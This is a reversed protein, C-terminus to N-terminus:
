GCLVVVRPGGSLSDRGASPSVCARLVAVVVQFPRAYGGERAASALQTALDVRPWTHARQPVALM